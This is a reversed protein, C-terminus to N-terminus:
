GGQVARLVELAQGEEVATTAWASRPLVDGDVAVAVGRAPEVLEAVTTGTPLEREEGNVSVRM